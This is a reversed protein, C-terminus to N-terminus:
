SPRLVQVFELSTPDVFPEVLARKSVAGAMERGVTVVRGLPLGKPYIQGDGTSLVADGERVDASRDLWVLQLLGGDGGRSDPGYLMGQAASRPVYASVVSQPDTLLLVEATRGDSREVRGVLGAPTRVLDGVYLRSGRAAAIKLRRGLGTGTHGIVEAPITEPAPEPPLGLQDRLRKNELYYQQTKLRVAELEEVRDRLQRNERALAGMNLVSDAVESLARCSRAVGVQLPRLAARAANEPAAIRGQREAAHHWVTLILGLLVLGALQRWERQAWATRRVM